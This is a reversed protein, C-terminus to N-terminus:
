MGLQTQSFQDGGAARQASQQGAVHARLHDVLQLFTTLNPIRYVDAGGFSLWKGARKIRVHGQYVEVGSVENWPIGQKSDTAISGMSLVFKGFAVTQGAM